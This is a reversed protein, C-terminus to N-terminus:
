PVQPPESVSGHRVGEGPGTITILSAAEHGVIVAWWHTTQRGGKTSCWAGRTNGPLGPFVHALPVTAKPGGYQYARFQAVTGSAWDLLVATGVADECVMKPTLSRGPSTAVSARPSATLATSPSSGVSSGPTGTGSCGGILEIAVAAGAWITANRM